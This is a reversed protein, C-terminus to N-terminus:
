QVVVMGKMYNHLNCFYPYSGKAEFTHSTSAASGQRGLDFPQPTGPASIVWHDVGDQNLWTVRDGVKVTTTTPTFDYDVIDVQGPVAATASTSPASTSSPSATTTGGASNSTSASTSTSSSGCGAVALVAFTVLALAIPSTRVTTV